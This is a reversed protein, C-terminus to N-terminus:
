VSFSSYFGRSLISFVGSAEIGKKMQSHAFGKGLVSNGTLLGKRTNGPLNNAALM